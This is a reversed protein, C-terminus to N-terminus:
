RSITPTPPPAPTLWVSLLVRRTDPLGLSGDPLNTLLCLRIRPPGIGAPHVARGGGGGEVRLPALDNM